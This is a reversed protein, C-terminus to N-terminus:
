TLRSSVEVWCASLDNPKYLNRLVQLPVGGTLEYHPIDKFKVWDAGLSLDLDQAIIEAVFEPDLRTDVSGAHLEGIEKALAWEHKTTDWIPQGNLDILCIDFALGFNHYSQGGKANTVIKGPATRGQAYLADQQAWSRLGQTILINAGQEACDAIFNNAAVILPPFLPTIRQTNLAQVNM